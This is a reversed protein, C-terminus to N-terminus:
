FVTSMAIPVNLIWPEQIMYRIELMKELAQIELQLNDKEEQPTDKSHLKDICAILHSQEILSQITAKKRIDKLAANTHIAAFKFSDMVSLKGDGDIDNDATLLWHFIYMLFINATWRINNVTMSASVSPYLGTSGVATINCKTNEKLGLHASLPMHNFIGAYCQGFYFVVRKFNKILQFKCYLPYPKIPPCSDLGQPSGHGTIFIVANEYTNDTLLEDIMATDYIKRPLPERLASFVIKIKINSARGIIVSIDNYDIKKHLLVKIGYAIDYIHREEPEKSSPLIFIWHTKGSLLGM